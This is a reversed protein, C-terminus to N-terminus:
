LPIDSLLQQTPPSYLSCSLLRLSIFFPKTFSQQSYLSKPPHAKSINSQAIQNSSLLGSLTLPHLATERKQKGKM